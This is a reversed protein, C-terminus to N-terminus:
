LWRSDDALLAAEAYASHDEIVVASVVVESVLGRLVAPVGLKECVEQTESSVIAITYAGAM